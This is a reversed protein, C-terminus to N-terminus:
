GSRLLSCAKDDRGFRLSTSPDANGRERFQLGNASGAAMGKRALASVNGAFLGFTFEHSREEEAESQQSEQSWQVGGYETFHLSDHVIWLM